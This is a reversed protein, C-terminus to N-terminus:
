FTVVKTATMYFGDIGANTDPVDFPINNHKSNRNYNAFHLGLNVGNPAAWDLDAGFKYQGGEIIMQANLAVGDAIPTDFTSSLKVTNKMTMAANGTKSMNGEWSLNIGSIATSAKLTTETKIDTSGASVPNTVKVNAELNIGEFSTKAGASIVRQSYNPDSPKGNFTIGGNLTIDKQATKVSLSAGKTDPDYPRSSSTDRYNPEFNAPIGWVSGNIEFNQISTVAVNAKFGPKSMGLAADGAITADVSVGDIGKFQANVAYDARYQPTDNYQIATADIVFDAVQGKMNVATIQDSSTWGHYAKIAFDGATLGTIEIGNTGVGKAIWPSYTVNHKGIVTNLEPGNKWWAGALFIKAGTIALTFPSSAGYPNGIFSQWNGASDIGGGFSAVNNLSVSAEANGAKIGLSAQLHGRASLEWTGANDTFLFAAGVRGSVNTSLQASATAALVVVMLMSVVLVSLKKM